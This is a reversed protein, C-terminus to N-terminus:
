IKAKPNNNKSLMRWVFHMESLYFPFIVKEFYEFHNTLWRCNYLKRRAVKCSRRFLIFRLPPSRGRIWLSHRCFIPMALSLSYECSTSMAFLMRGKWELNVRGGAFFGWCMRFVASPPGNTLSGSNRITGSDRSL